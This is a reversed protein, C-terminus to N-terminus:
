TPNCTWATTPLISLTLKWYGRKEDVILRKRQLQGSRVLPAKEGMQFWKGHGVVIREPLKWIVPFEYHSFTFM